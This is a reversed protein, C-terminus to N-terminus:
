IYRKNAIIWGLVEPLALGCPGEFYYQFHETAPTHELNFEAVTAGRRAAEPAFMGAPYVVSSTGVVLCVDCSRTAEEPFLM